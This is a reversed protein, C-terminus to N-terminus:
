RSGWALTIEATAGFAKRIIPGAAAGGQLRALAL